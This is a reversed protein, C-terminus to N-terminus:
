RVTIEVRSEEDSRVEVSQDGRQGAASATVRAAGPAVGDLRFEGRADSRAHAPGAAVEAGAVVEGDDSRVSGVVVGGRQLELTLDRMTVDHPREGAPVELASFLAAYGPARAVLTVRGVSLGTVEFRGDHSLALPRTHGGVTVELTAGAPLQGTQRDRVEGDIGGGPLLQLRLEDVAAVQELETPAFDAHTVRLHFPGPPLGDVTFRGGHDSLASRPAALLIEVHAGDVPFGREDVVTGDLRGEAPQLRLEVEDNESVPAARSAPSFGARRATLLAGPTVHELRFEGRENCVASRGEATSVEAGALPNGREDVVHGRLTLGRALTVLTTAHGQETLEVPASLGHLFDPHWVSAVVRGASLGAVHFRGAGDTTYGRAAAAPHLPPFPIAGHLLGLEGAAEFRAGVAHAVAEGSAAVAAAGAAGAPSGDERAVEVRAGAVPRGDADVVKGDLTAGREVVQSPSPSPPTAVFGDSGADVSATQTLHPSRPWLVLAALVLAGAM